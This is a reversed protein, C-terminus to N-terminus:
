DQLLSMVQDGKGRFQGSRNFTCDTQHDYWGLQAGNKDYVYKKTGLEQIYGRLEGRPGTINIRM